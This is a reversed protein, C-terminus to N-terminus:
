CVITFFNRFDVFVEFYIVALIQISISPMNSTATCADEYQKDFMVNKYFM